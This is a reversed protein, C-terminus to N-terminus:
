TGRCPGPGGEMRLADRKKRNLREEPPKISLIRNASTDRALLTGRNSGVPGQKQVGTKSGTKDVPRLAEPGRVRGM